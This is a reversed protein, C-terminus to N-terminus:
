ARAGPEGKAGAPRLNAILYLVALAAALAFWQVAYGVHRLPPMGPPAWERLYGDPEHADLLLLPAAAAWEHEGLLAELDSRTPFSAVVPFPGALRRPEGLRIGPRPLEDTRGRVVRDDGPVDISPLDARSAGLPVWGRDVLLWGGGALAFPTIVQYGARGAANSMNDLLIQRTADYHGRAAVERYRPPAPTHADIPLAAAAGAAFSEFLARKEEARHLQWRGLSVLLLMLAAALLTTLPRPAFLRTGVRIPM